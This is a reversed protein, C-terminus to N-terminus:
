TLPENFLRRLLEEAAQEKAKHDMYITIWGDKPEDLRAMAWDMMAQREAIVLAQRVRRAEETM